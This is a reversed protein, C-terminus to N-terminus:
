ILSQIEYSNNKNIRIVCLHGGAHAVWSRLYFKKQRDIVFVHDDPFFHQFIIKFRTNFGRVACISQTCIFFPGPKLGRKIM